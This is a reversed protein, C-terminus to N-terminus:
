GFMRAKKSRHRLYLGLTIGLTTTGIAGLGWRMLPLAYKIEDPTWYNAKETLYEDLGGFPFVNLVFGSALGNVVGWTRTPSHYVASTILATTVAMKGLHLWCPPINGYMFLLDRVPGKSKFGTGFVTDLGGPPVFPQESCGGVAALAATATM